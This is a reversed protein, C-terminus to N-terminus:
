PRGQKLQRFRDLDITRQRAAGRRAVVVRVLFLVHIAGVVGWEIPMPNALIAPIFNLVAAIQFCNAFIPDSGGGFTGGYAMAVHEWGRSDEEEFFVQIYRGIREVGTHLSFVVEFATALILLPLLTAVPLTALAATAITLGGWATLGALVTWVRTTGRERITDRLAKYEELDRPTMSLGKLAFRRAGIYGYPTAPGAGWQPV